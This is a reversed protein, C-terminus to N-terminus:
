FIRDAVFESLLLLELSFVAAVLTVWAFECHNPSDVLRWQLCLQDVRHWQSKQAV